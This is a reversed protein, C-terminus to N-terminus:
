TGKLLCCCIEGFFSFAYYRHFHNTPCISPVLYRRADRMFIAYAEGAPACGARGPEGRRPESGTAPLVNWAGKVAVDTLNRVCYRYLLINRYIRARLIRLHPSVARPHKSRISRMSRTSTSADWCVPCTPPLPCRPSLPSLPSLPRLPSMDAISIPHSRLPTPPPPAASRAHCTRGAKPSVKEPERLITIQIIFRRRTAKLDAAGAKRYGYLLHPTLPFAHVDEHHRVCKARIDALHGPRDLDKRIFEAALPM